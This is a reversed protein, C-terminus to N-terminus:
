ALIRWATSIRRLLRALAAVLRQTFSPPAAPRYSVLTTM